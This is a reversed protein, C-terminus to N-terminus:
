KAQVSPSRGKTSSLAVPRSWRYKRPLFRWSMARDALDGTFCVLDIDGESRLEDLNRLWNEGLVRRRRWVEQERTGREHLDSIHLITFSHSAGNENSILSERNSAKM